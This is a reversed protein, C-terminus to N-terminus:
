RIKEAVAVSIDKEVQDEPDTIEPSGMTYKVIILAIKLLSKNMEHIEQCHIQQARFM